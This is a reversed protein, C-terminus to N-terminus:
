KKFVIGNSKYYERFLRNRKEATKKILKQINSSNTVKIEKPFDLFKRPEMEANITKPTGDAYRGWFGSHRGDNLDQGYSLTSFINLKGKGDNTFRISDKLKGTRKLIPNSSGRELITSQKLPAFSHGDVDKENDFRELVLSKSEKLIDDIYELELNFLKKEFQGKTM